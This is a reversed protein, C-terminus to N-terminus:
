CASDECFGYLMLHVMYLCDFGARLALQATFGDYVGPAVIVKSEDSLLRRLKAAGTLPANGGGNASTSHDNMVIHGKIPLILNLIDPM